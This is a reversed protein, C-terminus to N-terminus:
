FQFVRGGAKGRARLKSFESMVKDHSMIIVTARNLEYPEYDMIGGLYVRELQRPNVDYDLVLKNFVVDARQQSLYNNRKMTGTKSDASGIIYFRENPFAKIVAAMKEVKLQEASLIDWRDIQFFVMEYPLLHQSLIDDLSLKAADNDLRDRAAQISDAAMKRAAMSVAKNFEPSADDVYEYKYLTDVYNMTSYKFSQTALVMQPAHAGTFTPDIQDTYWQRRSDENRWNFFFRLGGMVSFVPDAVEMPKEIGKVWERDFTRAMATYRFDLFLNFRQAIQINEEIGIHMESSRNPDVDADVHGAIGDYGESLGRYIGVGAYLMTMFKLSPNYLRQYSLNIIIDPKFYVYRWKQIFLEDNYYHYYGGLDDDCQGWGYMVGDRGYKNYTDRTIFGRGYGTGLGIRYGLMPFVMRGLSVELNGSLHDKLPGKNDEQGFFLQPGVQLEIFWNDYLNSRVWGINRVVSTDEAFLTQANMTRQLTTDPTYNLRRTTDTQAFTANSGLWLLLLPLACTWTHHRKNHSKM